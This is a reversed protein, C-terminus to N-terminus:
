ECGHVCQMAGSGLNVMMLAERSGPVRTDASKAHERYSEAVRRREEDLGYEDPYTNSFIHWYAREDSANQIWHREKFEHFRARLISATSPRPQTPDDQLTILIVEPSLTINIHYIPALLEFDGTPKM